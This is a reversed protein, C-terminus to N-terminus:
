RTSALICEAYKNALFNKYVIVTDKYHKEYLNYNKQEVNRKEHFFDTLIQFGLIENLFRFHWLEGDPVPNTLETLMMFHLDKKTFPDSFKIKNKSLDIKYNENVWKKIYSWWLRDLSYQINKYKEFTKEQNTALGFDIFKVSKNEENYFVNEKSIDHHYIDNKHLCHLSKFIPEIIEKSNTYWGELDCIFSNNFSYLYTKKRWERYDNTYSGNYHKLLHQDKTVIGYLTRLTNFFDYYYIGYNDKSYIKKLQKYGGDIANKSIFIVKHENNCLYFVGYLVEPANKCEEFAKQQYFYEDYIKYVDDKKKLTDFYIVEQENKIYGIKGSKFAGENIMEINQSECNENKIETIINIKDDKKWKLEQDHLYSINHYKKTYLKKCPSNSTM